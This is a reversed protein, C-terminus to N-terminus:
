PITEGLNGLAERMPPALGLGLRLRLGLGLGLALALALALALPSLTTTPERIARFPSRVWITSAISGGL